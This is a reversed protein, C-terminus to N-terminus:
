GRLVIRAAPVVLATALAVATALPTICSPRRRVQAYRRMADRESEDADFISVLPARSGRMHESM